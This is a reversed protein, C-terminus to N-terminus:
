TNTFPSRDYYTSDYTNERAVDVSQTLAPLELYHLKILESIISRKIHVCWKLIQSYVNHIIRDNRIYGFYFSLFVSHYALDVFNFNYYMKHVSLIMNYFPVWWGNDVTIHIMRSRRDWLCYFYGFRQFFFFSSYFLSRSLYIVMEYDSQILCCPRHFLVVFVEEIIDIKLVSSTLDSARLIIRTLRLRNYFKSVHTM